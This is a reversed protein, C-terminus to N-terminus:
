NCPATLFQPPCWSYHAQEGQPTRRLLDCVHSRSEEVCVHVHTSPHVSLGVSVWVRIGVCVEQADGQWTKAVADGELGDDRSFPALAFGQACGLPWGTPALGGLGKPSMQVCMPWGTPGLSGLDKPSMHVCVPWETPGSGGGGKSNVDGVCLAGWGYM